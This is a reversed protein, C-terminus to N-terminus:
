KGSKVFFNYSFYMPNQIDMVLNESTFMKGKKDKGEECIGKNMLVRTYVEGFCVFSQYLQLVIILISFNVIYYIHELECFQNQFKTNTEIINKTDFSFDSITYQM